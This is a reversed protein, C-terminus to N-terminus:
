FVAKRSCAKKNADKVYEAELHELNVRKLLHSQQRALVAGRVIRATTRLVAAMSAAERGAGDGSGGGGGGGRAEQDRGAQVTATAAITLEWGCSQM